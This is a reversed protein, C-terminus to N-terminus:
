QQDTEPKHCCDVTNSKETYAPSLYPIGLNAGRIILLMSVAILSVQIARYSKIRFTHSIWHIVQGAAFLAPTTGLGFLIMFVASKWSVALTLSAAVAVYVLGCPLLGNLVGLALHSWSGKKELLYSFKGKLWGIVNLPNKRFKKMGVPWALFLMMLIGATVAVWRQFGFAVFAQGIAGSIAGLVGYVSIRALHYLSKKYWWNGGSRASHVAMVLPGCMGICHLSGAVGLVLAAWIFDM